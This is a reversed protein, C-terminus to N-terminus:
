LLREGRELLSALHADYQEKTDFGRMINYGYLPSEARHAAAKSMQGCAVYYVGPQPNHREKVYFRQSRM